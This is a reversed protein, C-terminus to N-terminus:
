IHLIPILYRVETATWFPYGTPSEDPLLLTYIHIYFDIQLASSSCTPTFKNPRCGPQFMTGGVGIIKSPQDKSFSLFNILFFIGLPVHEM